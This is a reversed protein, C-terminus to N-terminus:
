DVVLFAWIPRIKEDFVDIEFGDVQCLFSCIPRSDFRLYRGLTLQARLIGLRDPALVAPQPYGERRAASRDLNIVQIHHYPLLRGCSPYHLFGGIPICFDVLWSV